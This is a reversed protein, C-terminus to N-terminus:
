IPKYLISSVLDSGSYKNNYTGSASIVHYCLTTVCEIIYKATLLIMIVFYLM